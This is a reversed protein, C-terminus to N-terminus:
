PWIYLGGCTKLVHCSSASWKSACFFLPGTVPRGAIKAPTWELRSIIAQAAPAWAKKGWCSWPCVLLAVCAPLMNTGKAAAGAALAASAAHPQLQATARGFGAADCAFLVETAAGLWHAARMAGVRPPAQLLAAAAPLLMAATRGCNVVSM